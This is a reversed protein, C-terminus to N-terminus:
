KLKAAWKECERFHYESWYLKEEIYHWEDICDLGYQILLQTVAVVIRLQPTPAVAMSVATTWAMRARDRDSINPLWWCKEKAEKYTRIAHYMHFDYEDKANYTKVTDYGSYRKCLHIDFDQFLFESEFNIPNLYMFREEDAHSCARLFFFLGLFFLIAPIFIKTIKERNLMTKGQNFAM